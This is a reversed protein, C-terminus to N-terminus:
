EDDYGGRVLSVTRGDSMVIRSAYIEPRRGPFVDDDAVGFVTVVDGTSVPMRNRWGIYVRISGSDDRLVFEDTDRIREVTGRLHVSQGRRVDATRMLPQEPQNGAQPQAQAPPADFQPRQLEFVRGQANTIDYAYVERLVGGPGRSDVIGVVAVREGPSVPMANTWGIYVRVSGSDDRIRFEDSDTLREVVGEIRVTDYPRLEAIPTITTPRVSTMVEVPSAGPAAHAAAADRDALQVAVGGEPQISSAYFEAPLPWPDDDRTGRVVVTDGVNVGLRNRWGIYVRISGSEDVLRFEDTDLIREVRGRLTASQGRRVEGIPTMSEVDRPAATPAPAADAGSPQAFSLTVGGPLELGTALVEPRSLGFAMEDHVLGQVVVTDGVAVLPAGSWSLVVPVTGTSDALRFRNADLVAVVEGRVRVRDGRKVGAIDGVMAPANVTVTQLDAPAMACAPMAGISWAVGVSGLVVAVTKPRM